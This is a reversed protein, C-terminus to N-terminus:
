EEKKDGEATDIMEIVKAITEPECAKIKELLRREDESIGGSTLLDKNQHTFMRSFELIKFLETTADKYKHKIDDEDLVTVDKLAEADFRKTELAQIYAFLQPLRQYQALVVYTIFWNIKSVVDDGLKKIEVPYEGEGKLWKMLDEPIINSLDETNDKDKEKFEIDMVM